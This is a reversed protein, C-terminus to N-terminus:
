GCPKGFRTRLLVENAMPAAGLEPQSTQAPAPETFTVTLTRSSQAAVANDFRWVTRNNETGAAVLNVPKGGYTARLLMSGLPVHLYTLMNTSGRAVVNEGLDLRSDVYDPLGQKPATNRLTVTLQSTRLPFGAQCKGQYYNASSRIYADIKNGAGNAFVVYHKPALPSDMSGGVATKAIRSQEQKNSSWLHLRGQSILDLFTKGTLVVDPNASTITAFIKQTLGLVALDKQDPDAYDAYVGKTIYGAVNKSTFTKGRFKVEGFLEVLGALTHEDAFLVGDVSKGSYQRYIASILRGNTPFDPSLNMDTLRSLDDGYLAAVEPTVISQWNRLTISGLANNSEQHLLQLKGDAVRLLGWGGPLGGTARAEAGNGMVLLWTRPRDIGLLLPAIGVLPQGQKLLPLAGALSESVERVPNSVIGPVFRLDLDNLTEVSRHVPKSLANIVDISINILEPDVVSDQDHTFTRLGEAGKVAANLLETGQEASTQIATVSRGLIPVHKALSWVPSNVYTRATKANKLATLLSDHVSKPQDLVDGLEIRMVTSKAQNIHNRALVGTVVLWLGAVLVVTLCSYLISKKTRRSM